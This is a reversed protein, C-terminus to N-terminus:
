LAPNGHIIRAPPEGGSYTQASAGTLGATLVLTVTASLVLATTAAIKRQM